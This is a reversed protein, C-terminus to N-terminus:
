EKENNCEHITNSNSLLLTTIIWSSSKHNNLRYHGKLIVKVTLIMIFYFASVIIHLNEGIM